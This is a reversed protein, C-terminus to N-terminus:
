IRDKAYGRELEALHDAEQNITYCYMEVGKDYGRNYAAEQEETLNEKRLEAGSFFGDELGAEYAELILHM